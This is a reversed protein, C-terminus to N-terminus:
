SISSIKKRRYIRKSIIISVEYLALLPLALSIQTFIDPPTLVAAIIFIGVISVRRYKVLGQPTTIGMKTLFGMVLPLQFIFGFSLVMVTLFSLYSNASIMPELYGRSYSLLFKVGLPVIVVYCFIAGVNFLLFSLLSLPLIARRESRKLGRAIFRWIQYFILPLSIYTGLFLSLKINVWFAETPNIFVLRGIPKILNKLVVPVTRYALSSLILVTIVCFILRGRLEELHELLTLPEDKQSNIKKNNIL